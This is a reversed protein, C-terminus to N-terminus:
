QFQVKLFPLDSEVRLTVDPPLFFFSLMLTAIGGEEGSVSRDEMLCCTLTYPLLLILEFLLLLTPVFFEINELRM